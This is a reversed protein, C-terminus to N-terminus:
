PTTGRTQITELINLYKNRVDSMKGYHISNIMVRLALELKLSGYNLLINELYYETAKVTDKRQIEGGIIMLEFIKLCDRASNRTMGYNNFLTDIAGQKSIQKKYVAKGYKYIVEFMEPTFIEM